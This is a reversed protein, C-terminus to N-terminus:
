FFDSSTVKYDKYSINIKKDLIDELDNELVNEGWDM